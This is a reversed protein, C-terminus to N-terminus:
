PAGAKEKGGEGGEEGKEFRNGGTQRPGYLGNKKGDPSWVPNAAGKEADTVQKAEGGDTNMVYIQPDGNRNSVFALRTGDPSWAPSHSRCKGHTWQFSQKTEPDLVFINSYYDNKEESIGTVVYAARKGDPSFVPNGVSLLEYLDEPKVRRKEAM